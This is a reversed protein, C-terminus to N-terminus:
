LQFNISPIPRRGSLSTISAISTLLIPLKKGMQGMKMGRTQKEIRRAQRQRHWGIHYEALFDTKYDQSRTTARRRYIKINGM